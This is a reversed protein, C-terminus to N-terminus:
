PRGTPTASSRVPASMTASSTPFATQLTLPETLPLHARWASIVLDARFMLFETQLAQILRSRLCNLPDIPAQIVAVISDAVSCLPSRHDALYDGLDVPVYM